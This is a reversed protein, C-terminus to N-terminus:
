DEEQELDELKLSVVYLDERDFPVSKEWDGPYSFSFGYRSCVHKEWDAPISVGSKDKVVGEEGKKPVCGTLFVLFLLVVFLLVKKM